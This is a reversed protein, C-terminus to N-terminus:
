NLAGVVKEKFVLPISLFSGDERREGKYYLFDPERRTDPLYISQRKLLVRGTIGEGPRFSMGQVKAEHSFGKAAKVVLGEGESESVLFTFEKFALVEGMFHELINCLDPLELIASIQLSFDFLRSLEKLRVQLEQNTQEIIQNKGELAEKYKLEKQAMILREETEIKFADLTTIQELLRNFSQALRGIIDGGRVPARVLFEKTPANAMVQILEAIPGDIFWRSLFIFVVSSFLVTLGILLAFFSLHGLRGVLDMGPSLFIFALISVVLSLLISAAMAMKTGLSLKDLSLKQFHM